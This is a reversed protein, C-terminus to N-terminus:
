FVAAFAYGLGIQGQTNFHVSDPLLALNDTDVWDNLPNSGAVMEQATRVALLNEPGTPLDDQIRGIVFKLDQGYRSRMDDIFELLNDQYDAAYQPNYTDHEGQMWLMGEIRYDWGTLDLAGLAKDVRSVFVDHQNNTGQPNWDVALSTAGLAEKILYVEEESKSAIGRGFTIESGFIEADPQLDLFADNYRWIKVDPFPAALDAPLEASLGQGVMNSQGGLLYVSVVNTVGVSLAQSDIQGASDTVTVVVDYVNDADVDLPTEYDPTAQFVLAGTQADISFLDADAGGDISFTLPNSSEAARVQTVFTSGESLNIAATEGGGNSIIEPVSTGAVNEVVVAIFQGDGNLGDYTIVNVFYVNNGDADTPNEYDPATKFSLVGTIPDITFKDADEGDNIAYTVNSSGSVNVDTVATSGESLNIVATENGGDSVIELATQDIINEVVVAIFQGDGGSGNYAIVNVFYVNNGDADTPNEYDPASKFSLVGTVPNITFKNADEGDNIAYIVDGGGSVNIDTVATSGESLQIVATEGGGNSVIELATQDIINEMVVAIFQGDGGSGNYAIVNVFYVNNGDADTPNEYDLASKFSLVGTVPNITFKDADEGDNIAYIVDGGGSVNIDTVATSGESLQIVATEGGGNSIIELVPDVISDSVIPDGIVAELVNSGSLDVLM